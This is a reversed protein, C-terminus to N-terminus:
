FFWGENDTSNEDFEYGRVNRDGVNQNIWVRNNDLLIYPEMWKPRGIGYDKNLMKRWEDDNARSNLVASRYDYVAGETLYIKGNNEVLVFISNVLGLGVHLIGNDPAGDRFRTYADAIKAIDTNNIKTRDSFTLAYNYFNEYSEGTWLKLNVPEGALEKKTAELYEEAKNKLWRHEYGTHIGNDEFVIETQNLLEISKEWFEINPEVIDSYHDPEPMFVIEGGEGGEAGGPSEAYLITTHKLEAWSALATNTNKKQWAETNMYDPKKRNNQLSVLAEINKNYLTKNFDPYNEFKAKMRASSAKYDDWKVTGSDTENLIREAVRNGFSNLVDLGDPFPRSSETEVDCMWMLIEADPTYRQPMFNVEAIPDLGEVRNFIRNCRENEKQLYDRVSALKDPDKLDSDNNIQFDAGLKESLDMMSCNDIEGILYSLLNYVNKMKEKLSSSAREYQLSLFLPYVISDDTNIRYKASQLWMMVKFYNQTNSNRTYFGRPKFISYPMFIGLFNSKIDALSEIDRIEEDYIDQLDDPLEKDNGTALRCAIAYYVVAHQALKLISEDSCSYLENMSQDFMENTFNCILPYINEEEVTQIMWALYANYASLFLDTTIYHPLKHYYEYPNYMQEARTESICFSNNRLLDIAAQSPSCLYNLNEALDINLLKLGDREIYRNKLRKEIEADVRNVFSLEDDNLIITKYTEAYDSEWLKWYDSKKNNREDIAYQKIIPKTTECYEEISNFKEYLDIEKFWHGHKAYPISRLVRLEEYSYHDIDMDYSINSYLNDLNFSLGYTGKPAACDKTIDDFEWDFAASSISESNREPVETKSQNGNNSTNSKNNNGSCSCGALVLSLSFLFGTTFKTYKM